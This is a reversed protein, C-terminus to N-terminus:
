EVRMVVSSEVGKRIGALEEIMKERDRKAPDSSVGSQAQRLLDSSALVQSMTEQRGDLAKRTIQEGLSQRANAVEATAADGADQESMGRRRLADKIQATVATISGGDAMARLTADEAIDSIGPIVQKGLAVAERAARERESQARKADADRRKQRTVPDVRAQEAMADRAAEKAHDASMGAGELRAALSDRENAANGGVDIADQAARADDTLTPLLIKALDTNAKRCEKMMEADAKEAAKAEEAKKHRFAANEKEGEGLEKLTPMDGSAIDRLLELGPVHAIEAVLGAMAEPDSAASGLKKRAEEDAVKAAKEAFKAATMEFQDPNAGFARARDAQKKASEYADGDDKDLFATPGNVEMAFEALKRAVAEGGGVNRVAEAFREGANKDAESRGDKMSSFAKESATMEDLKQRQIRLEDNSVITPRTPNLESITGVTDIAYSLNKVSETMGEVSRKAMEIGSTDGFSARIEDWNKYLQNGAVAAIQLAGAIGAGLGLGAVLPGINNVIASMGYQVDDAIYSLQTLGRGFQRSTNGAKQKAAEVSGIATRLRNLDDTLRGSESAFRTTSDLAAGYGAKLSRLEAELQKVSEKAAKLAAESKDRIELDAVLKGVNIEDM